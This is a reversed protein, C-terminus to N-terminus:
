YKNVKAMLIEKIILIGVINLNIVGKNGNWYAQYKKDLEISVRSHIHKDSKLEKGKSRTTLLQDVISSNLHKISGMKIM